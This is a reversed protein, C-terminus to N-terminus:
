RSRQASPPTPMRTTLHSRTGSPTPLISPPSATAPLSLASVLLAWTSFNPLCITFSSNFAASAVSYGLARSSIARNSVRGLPMSRATFYNRQSVAVFTVCAPFIVHDYVMWRGAAEGKRGESEAREGKRGEVTGGEAGEASEGKRRSLQVARQVRLVRERDERLQVARQLRQVREREERVRERAEYEERATRPVQHAGLPQQGWPNYQNARLRQLGAAERLREAQLGEQLIRQWELNDMGLPQTLQAPVAEDAARHQDVLRAQGNTNAVFPLQPPEEGHIGGHATHMHPYIDHAGFVGMCRWCIHAHCLRCEMHNCGGAKEILASCNPCKKVRGGQEAIWQENLAEQGETSKLLKQRECTIGEHPDEQCSSCVTSFCSPCQLTEAADPGTSRYIQTCDPTTCYKLELPNRAIHSIFAKEQLRDFSAKPLFRSIVPLAIAVGCRAEDGMCVLPFQDRDVAGVLFHRLCASCFVHGCVLQCPTSAADYCVACTAEGALPAPVGARLSDDILRHLNHRAEEGGSLTIIRTSTDLRVSDEGFMEKLEPVGRRVFYGVSQRSLTFKYELALRRDLEAKIASRAREVSDPDGYVRLTQKQWDARVYASTDQSVTRLFASGAPGQFTAHWGDVKEGRVLNEVRVKLAGVAQKISGNLQIRVFVGQENTVLNCARRDKISNSLFNWQELQARYQASPINVTFFLPDRLKLWMPSNGLFHFKQGDIAKRANDADEWSTFRALVSMNGRDYDPASEFEVLAHHPATSELLDRLRELGFEVNYDTARLRRLTPTGSFAEVEADSVTTPLNMIKISQPVFYKAAAGNPRTNMQVKVIRGSCRRRDLDRVKRNAQPIDEYEATYAVSPARWSISLVEVDRGSEGSQGMGGTGNYASVEVELRDDDWLRNADLWTSLNRGCEADAIVEADKKGDSGMKVNVIQFRGSDVGYETFLASVDDRQTDAPLKKIRITCSEFGTIITRIDLGAAFTVISGSIVTQNTEAAEEQMIAAQRAQQQAERALRAAERAQRAAALEVERLQRAAEQEAERALRAAEEEAERALRDAEEQAERARRATQEQEFRAVEEQARREAEERTRRAAEQQARRSAEQQARRAAEQQARRAAEEEAEHARRAAAAEEAERVRQVAAEREEAQRQRQGAERVARERDRRDAQAQAQQRRAEEHVEPDHSYWCKEGKKCSGARWAFCPLEGRRPRAAATSADRLASQAGITESRSAAEEEPQKGKVAEHNHFAANQIRLPALAPSRTAEPDHQYHCKDGKACSGAKWAFCPLKGRSQRSPATAASRSASKDEAAHSPSAVNEEPQRGRVEPDHRYKCRDGKVCSGSKWAFCPRDGQISRAPASDVNRSTSANDAAHVARSVVEQVPQMVAYGTKLEQDHRARIQVEPGHRYRCKDGKACSGAKWSFCLRDGQSAIRTSAIAASRSSSDDESTHIRALAEDKPQKGGRAAALLGQDHRVTDPIEPDHSYQCKDGNACWGTQWMHCPVKHTQPSAAQKGQSNSRTSSRSPHSSLPTPPDKITNGNSSRSLPARHGTLDQM